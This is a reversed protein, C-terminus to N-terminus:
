KFYVQLSDLSPKKKKLEDAPDMKIKLDPRGNACSFGNCKDMSIIGGIFHQFLYSCKGPVRKHYYNKNEKKHEPSSKQLTM